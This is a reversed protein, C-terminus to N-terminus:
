QGKKKTESEPLVEVYGGHLTVERGGNPLYMVVTRPPAYAHVQRTSLYIGSHIIAVSDGSVWRSGGV